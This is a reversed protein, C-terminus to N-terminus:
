REVATELRGFGVLERMQMKMRVVLAPCQRRAPLHGFPRHFRDGEGRQGDVSPGSSCSDGSLAGDLLDQNKTNWFMALHVDEHASQEFARNTNNPM